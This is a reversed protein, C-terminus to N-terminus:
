KGLPYFVLGKAGTTLLIGGELFQWSSIGADEKIVANHDLRGSEGSTASARSFACVRIEPVSNVNAPRLPQDVAILHAVTPAIWKLNAVDQPLQRGQSEARMLNLARITQQNHAYVYPEAPALRLRSVRGRDMVAAAVDGADKGGPLVPRGTYRSFLRVLRGEASSAVIIDGVVILQDSKDQNVFAMQDAVSTEFLMRESQDFLDKSAIRQMTTYILQGEPTLLVNQLADDRFNRAFTVKGSDNDVCLLMTGRPLVLKAATFDDSSSIRAVSAGEPRMQWLLKGTAADLAALRGTSTGLIVKGGALVVDTLGDAPIERRGMNMLVARRIQPRQIMVGVRLNRNSRDQEAESPTDPALDDAIQAVDPLEEPAVRWAVAGKTLDLAILEQASKLLVSTASLWACEAPAAMAPVTLKAIVIQNQDVVAVDGNALLLVVRRWDPNTGPIIPLIRDVALDVHVAEGFLAHGPAPLHLDPLVKGPQIGAAARLTEAVQTFTGPQIVQGNPLRMPQQTSIDGQVAAIQSLRSAAIIAKGPMAAYIRAMAEVFRAIDAHSNYEQVLQRYVGAADSLKGEAELRQGALYLAIPAATSNPFRRSLELLTEVQNGRTQAAALEDAAKQETARYISGSYRVILQQTQRRAVDGAYRTTGDSDRYLVVRQQPDDLIAQLHALTAAGDNRRLSLTAATLHFQVQHSPTRAAQQTIRLLPEIEASKSDVMALRGACTLTASFLREHAEATPEAQVLRLATQFKAKAEPYKGAAFLLEGYRVVPEASMPHALIEADLRSTAASLNTYVNVRKNTAIIVHEDTVLVNGPGQNEPWIGPYPPTTQEVKWNRTSVRLLRDDTPLFLSDATLFPRGRLSNAPFDMAWAMADTQESADERAKQWDVAGAAHEGALVLNGDKLGLLTDVNGLSVRSIRRIARGDVEDLVLVDRGDAPLVYVKGADTISPSAAFIRAVDLGASGVRPMFRGPIRGPPLEARRYMHLWAPMGDGAEFAGIVGVNSAVIVRGAHYSLQPLGNEVAMPMEDMLILNINPGSSVYSCFRLKGSDADLAVLYVDHFQANRGGRAALYVRDGVVLPPTVFQTAKLGSAERSLSAPTAKWRVKGSARDVCALLSSDTAVGAGMWQSGMTLDAMSVFVSDDSVAAGRLMPGVPPNPTLQVTPGVWGPLKMGGDVSVGHLGVGDVFFLERKDYVPEVVLSQNLSTRSSIPRGAQEMQGQNSIEVSFLLADSRGGAAPTRARDASGGFMPWSSDAVASPAGQKLALELEAVVEHEQGGVRAKAGPFDRKLVDVIRTARATNGSLQWAIGAQMLLAPKQSSFEALREAWRAASALEGEDWYIQMLRLAATQGANTLLYREALARLSPEDDASGLMAQAKPGFRGNYVAIGEAPWAGLQRVARESVSVYTEASDTKPDVPVVRDRYGDLLEQYIEAAKGWESVAELKEALAFREMAVSSDPVFVSATVGGDGAQANPNWPGAAIATALAALAAVRKTTIGRQM